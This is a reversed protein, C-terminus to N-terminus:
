GRGSGAGGRARCGNACRVVSVYTEGRQLNDFLMSDNQVFGAEDASNSSTDYPATGGSVELTLTGDGDGMCVEPTTSVVAAVLETPQTIELTRTITCGLDDQVIIDYTRPSLDNFTKRNPHDPDDGEFFESLTDSISYRIRGTGGSAEIIIQGNTDGACMVPVAELYELVLPPKPEIVIPDSIAECGGSQAYVYYTGADLDRFIGSSQAPRVTNAATPT